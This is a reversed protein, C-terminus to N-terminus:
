NYVLRIIQQLYLQQLYLVPKANRAWPPAFMYYVYFKGMEEEEESDEADMFRSKEADRERPDSPVIEGEANTMVGEPLEDERHSLGEESERPAASYGASGKKKQSDKVHVAKVPSLIM